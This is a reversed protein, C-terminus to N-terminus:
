ISTSCINTKDATDGSFIDETNCFMLFTRLTDFVDKRMYKQVDM